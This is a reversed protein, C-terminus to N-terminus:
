NTILLNCADHIYVHLSDSRYVNLHFIHLTNLKLMLGINEKGM